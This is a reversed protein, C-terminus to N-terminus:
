RLGLEIALLYRAVEPKYRLLKQMAPLGNSSQQSSQNGMHRLKELCRQKLTSQQGM